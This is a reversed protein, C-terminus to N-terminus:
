TWRVLLGREEGSLVRRRPVPVDRAYESDRADDHANGLEGHVHRRASATDHVIREPERLRRYMGYGRHVEVIRAHLDRHLKRDGNSRLERHSGEYLQWQHLRLKRRRDLRASRRRVHDTAHGRTRARAPMRSGSRVGRCTRTVFRGRRLRGSARHRLTSGEDSARTRQFRRLFPSRWRAVTSCSSSM